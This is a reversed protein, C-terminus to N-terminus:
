LSTRSTAPGFPWCDWGTPHDSGITRLDPAKASRFRCRRASAFCAARERPRSLGWGDQEAGTGRHGAECTQEPRPETRYLAANPDCLDGTRIRAGRNLNPPHDQISASRRDAGSCSRRPPRGAGQMPRLAGIRVLASAFSAPAGRASRVALWPGASGGRRKRQFARAIGHLHPVACGDPAVGQPRM